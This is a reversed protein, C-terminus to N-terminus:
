QIVTISANLARGNKLRKIRLPYNGVNHFCISEFDKPALPRKSGIVATGTKSKRSEMTKGLCHRTHKGYEIEISIDSDSTDNLIFVLGADMRTSLNQPIIATDTVRILPQNLPRETECYGLRIPAASLLLALSSVVLFWLRNCM